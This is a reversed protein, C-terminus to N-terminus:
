TIHLGTDLFYVFYKRLNTIIMRTCEKRVSALTDRDLAGTPLIFPTVDLCLCHFMSKQRACAWQEFLRAVDLPDLYLTERLFNDCEATGFWTPKAADDVHSRSLFLFAYIGTRESLM